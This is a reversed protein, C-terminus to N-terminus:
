ISVSMGPMRLDSAIVDAPKMKLRVLAAEATAVTDVAFGSRALGTSLLKLVLPDDDVVLVTPNTQNVATAM